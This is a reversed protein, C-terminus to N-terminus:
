AEYSASLQDSAIPATTFTIQGAGSETITNEVLGNLYVTVSGAVYASPLTFTKTTGDPAPTLTQRAKLTTGTGVVGTGASVIDPKHTFPNYRYQAM